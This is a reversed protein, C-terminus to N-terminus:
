SPPLGLIGAGPLCWPYCLLPLGQRCCGCGGSARVKHVSELQLRDLSLEAKVEQTHMRRM